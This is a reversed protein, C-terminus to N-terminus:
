FLSAQAEAPEERTPKKNCRKEATSQEREARIRALLESAPEDTPNQPVLKGEFARKLISQRLRSARKLNSEVEAEVGQLISMRRDIEAVIQKQEELPPLAVPTRRVISLNLNPQVGGASLRRIELYRSLMFQKVYPQCPKSASNFVPAACAQNTAADIGLEAVKERTKGEGYMAVLLSGSPFVKANTEWLAKETIYENAGTVLLQNLAGSTVWPITGNEYYDLRESLPTAGTGVDALQEVSVWCWGEALEPLDNADPGAPIKYKSRWNKPPKKGKEEYAALQDKEWQERREKLIRELLESASEVDPNEERWVQTLRGEVAAKLVATRYRKLNTRARELVAVGADLRSFQEEIAVVIRRQEPLPALIFPFAKIVTQSTNQQTGGKGLRALEPRHDLLYYFLYKAEVPRPDTFAIAQNTTLETGAIGLKGISGYMAMLVSGPRVWKASSNELGAQTINRQAEIVLGDTLDGIILWPLDGDYFADNTSQPTGGSGWKFAEGLKTHIWGDPLGGQENL